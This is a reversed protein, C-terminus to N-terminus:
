KSLYERVKQGNADKIVVGQSVSPAKAQAPVFPNYASTVRITMGGAYKAEFPLPVPKQTQFTVTLFWDGLGNGGPAVVDTITAPGDSVPKFVVGDPLSGELDKVTCRAKYTM